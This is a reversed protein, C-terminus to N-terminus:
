VDGVGGVCVCVCVCVCMCYLHAGKVRVYTGTGLELARCEDKSIKSKLIGILESSSATLPINESM